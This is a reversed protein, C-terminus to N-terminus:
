GFVDFIINFVNFVKNINNLYIYKSVNYDYVIGLSFLTTFIILIIIFIITTKKNKIRM